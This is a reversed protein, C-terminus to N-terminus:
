FSGMNAVSTFASPGNTELWQYIDSQWIKFKICSFRDRDINGFYLTSDYNKNERSNNIVTFHFENQDTIALCIRVFLSMSVELTM